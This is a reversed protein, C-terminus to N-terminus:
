NKQPKILRIRAYPEFEGQLVDDIPSFRENVIVLDSEIEDRSGFPLGGGEECQPIFDLQIWRCSETITWYHLPSLVIQDGVEAEFVIKAMEYLGAMAMQGGLAAGMWARGMPVGEQNWSEALRAWTNQFGCFDALHILNTLHRHLAGKLREDLIMPMGESMEKEHYFFDYILEPDWPAAM